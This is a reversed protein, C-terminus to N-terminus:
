RSDSAKLNYKEKYYDYYTTMRNEKNLKFSDEPTLTRDIAKITYLRNGGYKTVVTMGILEKQLLDQRSSMKMIMDYVNTDRLVRFATDVTMMLGKDYNGVSIGYGQLM